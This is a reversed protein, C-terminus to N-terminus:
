PIKISVKNSLDGNGGGNAARIQYVHTAGRIVTTDKFTTPGGTADAPLVVLRVADRLIVYKTIPSGNDPPITWTLQVAPGTVLSGSLVPTGPPSQAAVASVEASAPGEGAQNVATVVYYYRTGPALGTTDDFTRGTVTAVLTRNTGSTTSRYVKYSTVSAGGTSLPPNWALSIMGPTSSITVTTPASPPVVTSTASPAASVEASPTSAGVANLATVTYYYKTGNTVAEDKYTFTSKSVTTVLQSTAGATTGRNVRYKQVAWGGDSSPPQWSLNVAGSAAQASPNAPPQPVTRVSTDIFMAFHPQSVTGVKTFDGGMYLRGAGVALSWPGQSSNIRPAFSDLAGTAANVAALKNRTAGMFSGTGGYHGACYLLGNMLRVSQMNGNSKASWILSGSTADLGACAGGGGASAAYVRLGDSTLDYIPSYSGGNTPGARFATDVAGTGLQVAALKNTSAKGSVQGFDGGLYLRGSGNAAVTMARVRDNPLVQWASDVEGTSSSVKAAFAKSVGAGGSVSTFNGGAFVAGGAYALADVQGGSVAPSWSTLAGSSVSVAALGRRNAGNVTNFAGGLFVQSGDTALSTVTDSASAQFTLDAAGTTASFVAINKAPYSLGAPDIVQDFTGGVFIRDGVPLIALVRPKGVSASTTTAPGVGWTRAPNADIVAQAAPAHAIGAALVLGSV